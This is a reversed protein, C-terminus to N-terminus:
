RVQHKFFIGQDGFESAIFESTTVIEGILESNGVFKKIDSIKYKSYDFSRFKQPLAYVKYLSTGEKIKLFDERIDHPKSSFNLEENPVFFLQRPTVLGKELKGEITVAAMDNVRLEEPYKSAKKFIEHIVREGISKGKPVINSLPNKFFNYDNGQGMLTYLASINASYINNRFVKLALGPAVPKKDNVDPKYTVSLRILGCEAGRFVGTYESQNLPIFKVKAVAGRKHIYKKWGKPAFDSRKGAKLSLEQMAMGFVEKLGLESFPPLKKHKTEQIQKWIIEQKACASLSEYNDPVQSTFAVNVFFLMTLIAKLIQNM